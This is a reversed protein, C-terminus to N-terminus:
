GTLSSYRVLTNRRNVALNMRYTLKAGYSDTGQIHYLIEGGTIKNQWYPKALAVIFFHKFQGVYADTDQCDPHQWIEMGLYRPAGVNGAKISEDSSFRVQQQFQQYLSAARAPSTLIFDPEEGSKQYITTRANLLASLTLTASTDVTSAWAPQTAPALGGLTSTASVINRLGNAEYSTTGSRSDKHSVYTTTADGTVAGTSSTFAVNPIDLATVTGGDVASTEASTSGVDVLQNVFIWGRSLAHVGSYAHTPSINLDVDNTNSTRCLAILADGNMFLQRNLQRKIDTLAGQVESDVADVISNSNGSTGDIADGQIAIPQHHNTYNYEAKAYGQNGAANLNGGGAPLATYGGNRSVHLPVRATEGVTFRKTRQVKELFPSGQYIQEEPDTQEWVRQLAVNLSSLTAAM